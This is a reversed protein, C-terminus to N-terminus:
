RTDALAMKGFLCSTVRASTVAWARRKLSVDCGPHALRRRLSRCQVVAAVPRAVSEDARLNKWTVTARASCEATAARLASAEPTGTCAIVDPHAAVIKAALGPLKSMDGEAQRDVVDLTEGVGWGLASLYTLLLALGPVTSPTSASLWGMRMRRPQTAATAGITVACLGVAGILIDRRRITTSRM